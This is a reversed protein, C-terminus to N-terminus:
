KNEGKCVPYIEMEIQELSAQFEEERSVPISRMWQDSKGSDHIIWLNNSKQEADVSWRDIHGPLAMRKAYETVEFGDGYVTVDRLFWSFAGQLHASDTLLVPKKQDATDYDAAVQEEQIVDLVNSKLWSFNKRYQYENKTFSLIDIVATMGCICLALVGAKRFSHDQIWESVAVAFGLCFLGSAPIAYRAVFVPRIVLSAAIGILVVEVVNLMWLCAIIHKGGKRLMNICASIILVALLVAASRYIVKSNTYPALYFKCYDLLVEPTITPIWYNESVTKVQGALVAFWPLFAAIVCAASILLPRIGARDRILCWIFASAYICFVAVGCFYHTYCAAVCSIVLGFWVVHTKKGELLLAACVGALTVFLLGWSYMRILAGVHIISPFGVLFCEFLSATMEGYHKRIVKWSFLFLFYFPIVAVLKGIYVAWYPDGRGFLDVALKLIMYYLPPHVDESALRIMETWSHRTLQLSFIEDSIVSLNLNSITIVILALFALVSLWKAIKTEIKM